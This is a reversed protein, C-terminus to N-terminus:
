PPDPPPAPAAPAARRLPPLRRPPARAVALAAKPRRRPGRGRGGSTPALAAAAGAPAADARAHARRATESWHCLQLSRVLWSAAIDADLREKDFTTDRHREVMRSVVSM